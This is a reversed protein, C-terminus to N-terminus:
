QHTSRGVANVQKEIQDQQRTYGAVDCRYSCANDPRKSAAAECVRIDYTQHRIRRGQSRRGSELPNM